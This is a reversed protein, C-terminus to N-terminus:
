DLIARPCRGNRLPAGRHLRRRCHRSLESAVYPLSVVMNSSRGFLGYARYYSLVQTQFQGKTNVIPVAPDFTVDGTNWSWSITVANSAKPTVLYARPALEQATSSTVAVLLVSLTKVIPIASLPQSSAALRQRVGRFIM